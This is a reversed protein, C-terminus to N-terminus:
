DADEPPNVADLRNAWERLRRSGAVGNQASFTVQYGPRRACRGLLICFITTTKSARRPMEVVYQDLDAALADAVLLQQPQIPQRPPQMRKLRDLEEADDLDVLELGYLRAGTLFDLRKEVDDSQPGDFRPAIGRSKVPEWLHLSFET